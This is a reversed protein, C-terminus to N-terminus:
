IKKNERWRKARLANISPNIGYLPRVAPLYAQVTKPNHGTQSAIEDLNKGKEYLDLIMRHTDNIIYGNSSLVKVVRYWSCGIRKATEKISLTEEYSSIIEKVM